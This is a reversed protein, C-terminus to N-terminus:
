FDIVSNMRAFEEIVDENKIVDRSTDRDEFIDFLGKLTKIINKM